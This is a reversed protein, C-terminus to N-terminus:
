IHKLEYHWNPLQTIAEALHKRHCQCINAEFCTLAIRQKEQLLTLITEQTSVTHPLTKKKYNNFLTDYDSQVKLEQRYESQIGVDAFHIYEINLGECYRILQSKSFGFKQSMPNNRVDVLVRIDNQILKNLYAELSIGEYGITYLTTNTLTSRVTNIKHLQEKTLLREAVTSNIAYYPYNIYTHKMLGDSNMKNYLSYAQNVLQKDDENLLALYNKNDKKSYGTEDESLFDRKVMAFLDAKASHSYCGYLYPIFDYAPAKQKNCVLFLLKQLNIKDLRGGFVQLLALIIKRRYFM